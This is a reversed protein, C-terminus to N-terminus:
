RTCDTQLGSKEHFLLLACREMWNIKRDMVESGDTVCGMSKSLSPQVLRGLIILRTSVSAQFGDPGGGTAPHATRAGTQGGATIKMWSLIFINWRWERDRLRHPTEVVAHRAASLGTDAGTEGAKKRATRWLRETPM